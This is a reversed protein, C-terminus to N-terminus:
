GIRVPVFIRDDGRQILLAVSKNAKEVAKRADEVSKAAVGNISLVVDGSQVGAREAPGSAQEVVLGGDLGSDKREQPELPRLALGLKGHEQASANSAQAKDKPDASLQATIETAHGQRWVKLNVRDGSTKMM